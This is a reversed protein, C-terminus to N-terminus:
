ARRGNRRKTAGITKKGSGEEERIKGKTKLRNIIV